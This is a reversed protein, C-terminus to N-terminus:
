LKALGAGPAGAVARERLVRRMVKNSANRPLRECVIVAHVKFLPNLHARIAAQCAAQLGARAEATAEAAVVVFLVLREPGGAAPPVAVAAVERAAAVHLTCAREIEM